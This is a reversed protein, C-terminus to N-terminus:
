ARKALDRLGRREPTPVPAPQPAPAGAQLVDPRVAQPPAFANGQAFEVGFDILEAIESEDSVGDAIFTIKARELLAVFDASAVELLTENHQAASLFQASAMRLWRVNLRALKGLDLDFDTVDRMMLTFGLRALKRLAENEYAVAKTFFRQPLCLVLREAARPVDALLAELEEFAAESMLYRQSIDVFLLVDRDRQMFVRALRVAQIMLKRDFGLQHGVAEVSARIESNPVTLAVGDPRLSIDYARTRRQPLGVVRQLFLDFRDAAIAAAVHQRVARSPEPGAERRPAVPEEFPDFAPEVRATEVRSPSPPAVPAPAPTPVIVPPTALVPAPSAVPRPASVWGPAPVAARAAAAAVPAARRVDAIEREVGEARRDMESLNDALDRVLASLTAFESARVSGEGGNAAVVSERLERTHRALLAAHQRTSELHSRLVGLEDRAAKLRLHVVMGGAVFAASLAAVVLSLMDFRQALVSLGGAFLALISVTLIQVLRM